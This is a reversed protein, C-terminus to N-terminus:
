EGSGGGAADQAGHSNSSQHGAPTDGTVISGYAVAGPGWRIPRADEDVVVVVAPNVTEEPDNPSDDRAPQKAENVNILESLAAQLQEPDSGSVEVRKGDVEVILSTERPRRFIARLISRLSDSVLTLATTALFAAALSTWDLDM